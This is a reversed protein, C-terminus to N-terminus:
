RFTVDVTGLDHSFAAAFTGAAPRKPPLFTGSSVLTGALIQGNAALIREFLWRLSNLPGEMVRTAAGTHVTGDAEEFSVTVASTDVDRASRWVGAVAVYGAAANDAIFTGLDVNPMQGPPFWHPVRSAPIELGGTVELIAALGADDPISELPATTRFVLEPELLADNLQDLRLATGAEIIQDALLVGYSPGPANVPTRDEPSTMSIKYGVPQTGSARVVEDTIRRQLTYGADEDLGLDGPPSTLASVDLAEGRALTATITAYNQVLAEHTQDIVTNM